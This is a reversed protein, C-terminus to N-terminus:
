GELRNVVFELADLREDIDSHSETLEGLIAVMQGPTAGTRRLRNTLMVFRERQMWAVSSPAMFGCGEPEDPRIGLTKDPRDPRIGTLKKM